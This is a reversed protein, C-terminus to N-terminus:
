CHARPAPRSVPTRQLWTTVYQQFAEDSTLLEELRSTPLAELDLHPQNGPGAGGGAGSSSPGGPPPPRIGNPRAGAAGPGPLHPIIGGPVGGPFLLSGAGTGSMPVGSSSAAAASAPQAQLVALCDAVVQVLSSREPIRYDWRGLADTHIRGTADVVPHRVPTLVSLTPSDQPFLSPLSIRLATGRGGPLDLPLDLM